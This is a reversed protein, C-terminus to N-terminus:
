SQNGRGRSSGRSHDEEKRETEAKGVLILTVCTNDSDIVVEPVFVSYKMM